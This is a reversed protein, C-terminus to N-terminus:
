RVSALQPTFKKSGDSSRGEDAFAAQVAKAAQADEEKAAPADAVLSDFRVSRGVDWATVVIKSRKKGTEKDEWQETEASGDVIVRQGKAFSEIHEAMEDFAKCEWFTTKKNDDQGRTEAVTFTVWPTGSQGYRLEPDRTLNVM